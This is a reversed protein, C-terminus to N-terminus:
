FVKDTPKRAEALRKRAKVYPEVSQLPMVGTETSLLYSSSGDLQETVGCLMFETFVGRLGSPKEPHFLQIEYLGALELLENKGVRGNGSEDVESAGVNKNAEETSM